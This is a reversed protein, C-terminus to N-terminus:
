LKSRAIFVRHQRYSFFTWNRSEKVTQIISSILFINKLLFKHKLMGLFTNNENFFQLFRGFSPARGGSGDGQRRRSPAVAAPTQPSCRWVGVDTMRCQSNKERCRGMFACACVRESEALYGEKRTNVTYLSHV